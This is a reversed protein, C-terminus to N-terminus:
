IHLVTKVVALMERMWYTGLLYVDTAAPTSSATLGARQCLLMGRRCHFDSTVVTVHRNLGNQEIIKASFAVNEETSTSRDELYLRDAAIGRRVLERRMCEAESIKEDPGQGGSLVAKSDPNKELYETAAEIRQRLMRSPREGKVSCGLVLVTEDRHGTQILGTLMYGSTLVAVACVLAVAAKLVVAGPAHNSPALLHTVPQAFMGCLLLVVAFAIGLVNGANLIRNLVWPALYWLLLVAGVAFFAVQIFIVQENQKQREKTFTAYCLAGKLWKLRVSGGCFPLARATSVSWAGHFRRFVNVIRRM